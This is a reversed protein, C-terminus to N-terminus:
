FLNAFKFLSVNQDVLQLIPQVDCPSQARCGSIDQVLKLGGIPQLNTKSANAQLSLSNITFNMKEANQQLLGFYFLSSIYGTINKLQNTDSEYQSNDTSLMPANNTILINLATLAYSSIQRAIRSTNGSASVIEVRRIMGVPVGLLTAVNSVLSKSDFFANTSIAKVGFTLFIEPSIILDIYDSGDISFYLKATSRDMYNSGAPDAISPKYQNPNGQPDKLIIAGTSNDANNPNILNINKYVNINNSTTYTMSLRIKFNVDANIIRFRLQNPPTSTLYIDYSINSHVLALFTSIRKQCTFGFCWGHDQPGNILDLYGNDSVIAVPSLRRTETDNDMSEIILMRYDLGHCEYGQWASRYTCLQQDRVIGPYTYVSSINLQQGQPGALALAPIRWDGVGHSQIGWSYESQSIVNGPSGLFTGDLDTLLLKKLGDCEMDVCDSPNIYKVDPRHLFVKSDNSVDYMYTKQINVPM